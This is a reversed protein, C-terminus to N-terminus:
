GVFTFFRVYFSIQYLAGVVAFAGLFRENKVKIAILSLLLFVAGQVDYEIGLQKLTTPGKIATDFFDAVQMVALTGFFWKRRSLFYERFGDYENMDNPFLLACLLYVLSGYFVVFVYM